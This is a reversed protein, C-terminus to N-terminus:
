ADIQVVVKPQKLKENMVKKDTNISQKESIARLLEFSRNRCDIKLVTDLSLLNDKDTLCTIAAAETHVCKM